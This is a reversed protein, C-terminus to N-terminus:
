KVADKLNKSPKFKIGYSAPIEIEEKTFPNIGTRAAREVTTFKGFGSFDITGHEVLTEAMTDVMVKIAQTAAVKTMGCEEALVNALEKKTLVKSM